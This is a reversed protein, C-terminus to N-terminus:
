KKAKNRILDLLDKMKEFTGTSNPLNEFPIHEEIDKGFKSSDPLKIKERVKLSFM